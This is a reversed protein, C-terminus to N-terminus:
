TSLEQELVQEHLRTPHNTPATVTCTQKLQLKLKAYKTLQPIFNAIAFGIGKLVFIVDYCNFLFTDFQLLFKCLYLYKEKGKILTGSLTTHGARPAPHSQPSQDGRVM